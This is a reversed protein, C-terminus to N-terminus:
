KAELLREVFYIDVDGKIFNGNRMPRDHLAITTAIPEIRFEALARRLTSIAEDRSPRHVILKAIMSDYNPPVTYGSYCHTDMRVGPGGPPDFQDIRGACPAFGKNRDRICM